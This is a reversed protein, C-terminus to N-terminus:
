LTVELAASLEWPERYADLGALNAGSLSANELRLIDILVRILAVDTHGSAMRDLIRRVAEACIDVDRDLGGLDLDPLDRLLPIIPAVQIMSRSVMYIFDGVVAPALEAITAPYCAGLRVLALRVLARESDTEAPSLRRLGVALAEKTPSTEREPEFSVMETYAQVSPVRTLLLATTEALRSLLDYAQRRNGQQIEAQAHLWLLEALRGRNGMLPYNQVARDLLTAARSPQELALLARAEIAFLPSSPSREKREALMSLIERPDSYRFADLTKRGVISEWTELDALAETEPPLDISMRGALWAQQKAPLEEVATALYPEVGSMWRSALVDPAEGLMLRHYLEEARDRVNTSPLYYSIAAQQLVKVADPRESMLMALIPRRVEERYRLSQDDDLSVLAHERRLENFLRKARADDISGLGCAPALVDRIIDQTVRRLVMGPHALARVDPDHIHDLIRRYLQGQVVDATVNFIPFNFISFRHTTLGSIGGKADESQAVRAALRLTLPNGGIQRAITQAAYHDVVGLSRLLHEGDAPKLDELSLAQPRRTGITFPRPQVRGAIIVRLPAFHEQVVELMRWLGKLDERARYYVEEFSDFVLLVPVKSAKQQAAAAGVIAQLLESFSRYLEAEVGALDRLRTRQSGRSSARQRLQARNERYAAILDRFREAAKAGALSDSASVENTLQAAASLLITYPERVDLTESDFPLYAFPFWGMNPSNVHELLFKGILATKGVGGPGFVVLPPRAESAVFSRLQAWLSPSVVGLYDRLTQLETDRGVFADDVLHEFMAVASRRVTATVTTAFDPLGGFEAIGWDYLQSLAGLQDVSMSGLAFHRADLWQEFAAQVETLTREPNVTLADRLASRGGLRWLWALASRRIELKLSRLGRHRWGIAPTSFDLIEQLPDVFKALPLWPKLRAVDFVHLVSAALLYPFKPDTAQQDAHAHMRREFEALVGQTSLPEAMM